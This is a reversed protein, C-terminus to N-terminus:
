KALVMKRTQVTGAVELAYFYVGSTLNSADFVVSQAGAGVLGNVLTAVEAGAVNYVKLSANATEAMTFEITTSPNFPNPFANGLQFAAPMDQTDSAGGCFEFCIDYPQTPAGTECNGDFTWWLHIELTYVGAALCADGWASGITAPNYECASICRNDDNTAVTSGTVDKLTFQTDSQDWGCSSIYWDCCDEALELTASIVTGNPHDAITMCNAVRASVDLNFRSVVPTTPDYVKEASATGAVLGCLMLATLATKM